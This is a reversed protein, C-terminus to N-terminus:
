KEKHLNKILETMYDYDLKPTIELNERVINFKKLIEFYIPLNIEWKTQLTSYIMEKSVFKVIGKQSLLKMAQHTRKMKGSADHNGHSTTIYFNQVNNELGDIIQYPLLLSFPVSNMHNKSLGPILNNYKPLTASRFLCRIQPINNQSIGFIHSGSISVIKDNVLLGWYTPPSILDYKSNWKLLKLSSNNKFGAIECDRCYDILIDEHSCDLKIINM